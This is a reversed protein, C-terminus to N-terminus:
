LRLFRRILPLGDEASKEPHFQVGLVNDKGVAATVQGDGLAYSALVHEARAAHAQYSHVFYYKGTIGQM